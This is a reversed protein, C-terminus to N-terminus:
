PLKGVVVPGRPLQNNATVNKERGSKAIQAAEWEAFANM